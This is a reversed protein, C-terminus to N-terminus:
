ELEIAGDKNVKLKPKRQPASPQPEHPQVSVTKHRNKSSNNVAVNRRPRATGARSSRPVVTRVTARTKYPCFHKTRTYSGDANEKWNICVLGRDTVFTDAVMVGNDYRQRERLKGDEDYVYGMGHERNNRYTVTFVLVHKADPAPQNNYKAYIGDKLGQKYEAIEEIKGHSYYIKKGDLKGDKYDEESLLGGKDDYYIWHGEKTGTLENWYQISWIRGDSYTEIRKKIQATGALPLFLLLCLLLNNRTMM